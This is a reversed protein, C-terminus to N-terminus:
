IYSLAIYCQTTPSNALPNTSFKRRRSQQLFLNSQCDFRDFLVVAMEYIHVPFGASQWERELRAQVVRERFDKKVRLCVCLNKVIEAM